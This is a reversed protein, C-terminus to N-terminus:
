PSSGSADARALPEITKRSIKVHKERVALRSALRRASGDIDSLATGKALAWQDVQQQSRTALHISM